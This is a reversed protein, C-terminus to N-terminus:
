LSNLLLLLRHDHSTQHWFYSCENNMFFVSNYFIRPIKAIHPRAKTELEEEKCAYDRGM